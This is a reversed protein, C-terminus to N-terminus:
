VLHSNLYQIFLIGIKSLETGPHLKTYSLFQRRLRALQAPNVQNNSIIVPESYGSIKVDGEINMTRAALIETVIEQTLRDMEYLYNVSALPACQTSQNPPPARRSCLSSFIDDLPLNDSTQVTFLPSDWRNRSDPEEFRLALAEYVEDSYQEVKSRKVNWEKSLQKPACCLVTCQTTKNAKTMCYLEYRYGKIYNLADVIVINEKGVLRTAESKIQGRLAKELSPDCFILNKHPAFKSVLNNESIVDVTKKHVDEFYRKIEECRTSKGCSPFGCVIVLPM